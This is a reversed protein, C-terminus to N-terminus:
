GGGQRRDPRTQLDPPMLCLGSVSVPGGVGGSDGQARQAWAGLSAPAAWPQSLHVRVPIRTESWGGTAPNFKQKESAWTTPADPDWLGESSM